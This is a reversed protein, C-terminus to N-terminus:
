KSNATRQGAAEFVKEAAPPLKHMNDLFLVIQWVQQDGLTRDWAPMGTWRIGRQIL